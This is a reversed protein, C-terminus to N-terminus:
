TRYIGTSRHIIHSTLILGASYLKPLLSSSIKPHHSMYYLYRNIHMPKRYITTSLLSRMTISGNHSNCKVLIDLFPLFFNHEKEKTFQIHTCMLNLHTHFDNIHDKNLICFTSDVYRLRLSPSTHFTIATHKIHKMYISAFIPSICSGMPTGYIHKFFSNKYSFVTSSFCHELGITIDAIDFFTRSAKCSFHTFEDSSLLELILGLAKDVPVSKYLSGM